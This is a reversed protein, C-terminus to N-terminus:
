AGGGAAASPVGRPARIYRPELQELDDGAPDRALRIAAAEAVAAAARRPPVSRELGFAEALEVPAVAAMGGPLHLREVIRPEADDRSLLYADAAGARALAADAQPESQLWAELSPVGVLPVGLALALGKALSMGVRLGTFSGPGTGIGIASVSALDGGAARLATELRPLLEHTQRPTASWGDVHILGGDPQALAISPDTSASEIALIV